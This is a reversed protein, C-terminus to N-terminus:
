GEKLYNTYFFQLMIIGRCNLEMSAYTTNIIIHMPLPHFFLASALSIYKVNPM